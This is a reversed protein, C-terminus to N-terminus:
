RKLRRVTEGVKNKLKKKEERIKENRVAVKVRQELLEVEKLRGMLRWYKKEDVGQAIANKIVNKSFNIHSNFGDSTGAKLLWNDILVEDYREIKQDGVLKELLKILLRKM